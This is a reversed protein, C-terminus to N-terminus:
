RDSADRSKGRIRALLNPVPLFHLQRWAYYASVLNVCAVSAATSMAAGTAGYEPILILGLVINLAAAIVTARRYYAHNGTMMLLYAVSGTALNVLEGAALILLPTAASQFADGFLNMLWEPFIIIAMVLPLASLLTIDDGKKHEAALKPATISNVALGVFGVLMAIRSATGFLGLDHSSGFIGLLIMAAWPMVIRNMISSVYLAGSSARLEKLNDTASTGSSTKAVRMWYVVALVAASIAAVAYVKAAALASWDAPVLVFIVLALGPIMGNQIFVASGARRVARFLQALINVLTIPVVAIAMYRLPLALDPKEFISDALWGSGILLIATAAGSGVTARIAAYQFISQIDGWEGAEAHGSAFRLLANDLGLRGIISSILVLTIGLFFVGTQDVGISRALVVYFILSAVSAAIRAQMAFFSGRLLEYVHIGLWNSNKRLM